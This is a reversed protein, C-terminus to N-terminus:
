IGKFVRVAIYDRQPLESREMWLKVDREGPVANSFKIPGHPLLTLLAILRDLGEEAMVHKYWPSTSADRGQPDEPPVRTIALDQSASWFQCFPM